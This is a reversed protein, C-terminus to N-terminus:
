GLAGFRGQQRAKARRDADQRAFMQRLSDRPDAPIQPIQSGGTPASALPQPAAPLMQRQQAAYAAAHQDLAQPNQNMYRQIVQQEYARLDGNPIAQRLQTARYDAVARSFADARPMGNADYSYHDGLQKNSALQQAVVRVTEEGYTAVARARDAEWGIRAVSKIQAGVQQQFQQREHAAVAQAERVAQDRVWSAYGQPDQIHDPVQPPQQQAAAQAGAREQAILYGELKAAREREQAASAEAQRARDSLEALRQRVGIPLPNEPPAAAPQGNVQQAFTAHDVVPATIPAAFTQPAPQPSVPTTVVPATNSPESNGFISDVYAEASVSPQSPAPAVAPAPAPAPAVAPQTAFDDM